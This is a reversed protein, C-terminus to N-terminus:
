RYDIWKAGKVSNCSFCLPQANRISHEGGLKLPKVHDLTLQISPEKKKCCLCTYDYKKKLERWEKTTITGDSNKERARRVRDKTKQIERVKDKNERAWRKAQERHVNTLAPSNKRKENRILYKVHKRIELLWTPLGKPCGSKTSYHPVGGWRDREIKNRCERCQSRLGYVGTKDKGFEDFSKLM